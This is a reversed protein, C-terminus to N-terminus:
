EEGEVTDDDLIEDLKENIEDVSVEKEEKSSVAEATVKRFKVRKGATNIPEQYQVLEVDHTPIGDERKVIIHRLVEDALKLENDVKNIADGESEVFNLIYTGHTYSKIQYAFKIKGLNKEQKLSVGHKEYLSTVEKQIGEIESDSFKSPIIYMIEYIM